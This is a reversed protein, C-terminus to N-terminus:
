ESLSSHAHVIRWRGKADLELVVTARAERLMNQGPALWRYEMSAWAFRGALDVRTSSVVLQGGEAVGAYRPPAFRRRGQAIIEAGALYLTDAREMRADAELAAVAIAEIGDPTINAPSALPDPRTSPQGGCGALLVLLALSRRVAPM